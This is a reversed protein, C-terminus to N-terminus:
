DSLYSWKGLFASEALWARGTQRSGAKESERLCNICFSIEYEYMIITILDDRARRTYM